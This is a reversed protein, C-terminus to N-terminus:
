MKMKPMKIALNNLLGKLKLNLEVPKQVTKGSPRDKLTVRMGLDPVVFSSFISRTIFYLTV